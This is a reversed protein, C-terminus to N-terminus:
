RVVKPRNKDDINCKYFMNKANIINEIGTLKSCNYFVGNMTIVKSTDWSQLDPIHELSTCESFLGNIKTVNSVNWKSIDPM